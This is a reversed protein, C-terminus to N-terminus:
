VKGNQFGRLLIIGQKLLILTGSYLAAMVMYAYAVTSAALCTENSLPFLSSIMYVYIGERIGIGSLSIPILTAFTIIPQVLYAGLLPMDADIVKFSLYFLFISLNQILFSLFFTYIIEKFSRHEKTLKLFTDIKNQYPFWSPITIAKSRLTVYILLFLIFTITIMGAISLAPLPLHPNFFFLVWFSLTLLAFGQLRVYFISYISLSSANIKKGLTISKIADGGMSGPLFLNFFHGMCIYYYFQLITPKDKKVIPLSVKWRIAQLIFTVQLIILSFGLYKLNPRAITEIVGDFSVFRFLFFLCSISILFKLGTIGHKKNM